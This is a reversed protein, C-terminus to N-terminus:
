LILDSIYRSVPASFWIAFILYHQLVPTFFLMKSCPIRQHEFHISQLLLLDWWTVCVRWVCWFFFIQDSSNWDQSLFACLTTLIQHLCSLLRGHRVAESSTSSSSYRALRKGPTKKIGITADIVHWLNNSSIHTGKNGWNKTKQHRRRCTWM